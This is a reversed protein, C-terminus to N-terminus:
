PMEDLFVDSRKNNFYLSMAFGITLTQTPARLDAESYGGSTTSGIRNGNFRYGAFNYSVIWRYAVAEDSALVMSFAPEVYGATVQQSGYNKTGTTIFQHNAVGLRVGLEVGLRPAVWSTWGLEVNGGLVHMGGRMSLVKKNNVVQNDSVGPEFPIKYENVKYYTYRPGAAIYWHKFPKYQIRPQVNVLGNLYNRFMKNAMGMPLSIEGTINWKDNEILNQARSSFTSILVVVLVAIKKMFM